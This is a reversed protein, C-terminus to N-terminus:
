CYKVKFKVAVHLPTNGLADWAKLMVGFGILKQLVDIRGAEVAQLDHSLAAASCSFLTGSVWRTLCLLASCTGSFSWSVIKVMANCVFRDHM